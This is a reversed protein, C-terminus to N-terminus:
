KSVQVLVLICCQDKELRAAKEEKTELLLSAAKCVHDKELRAAKEEETEALLGAVKRV